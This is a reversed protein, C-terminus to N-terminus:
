RLLSYITSRRWSGEEGPAPLGAENLEEMLASFPVGEEIRLRLLATLRERIVSFDRKNQFTTTIAGISDDTAAIHGESSDSSESNCTIPAEVATGGPRPPSVPTIEVETEGPKEKSPAPAPLPSTPPRRNNCTIDHFAAIARAVLLSTSEGAIEKIEDLRKATEPAMWVSLSRGGEKSKRERWEKVRQRNTQGMAGGGACITQIVM